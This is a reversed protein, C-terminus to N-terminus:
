ERLKSTLQKYDKCNTDVCNHRNCDSWLIELHFNSNKNVNVDEADKIKDVETVLYCFETLHAETHPLVDKYAMWGWMILTYGQLPQAIEDYPVMGTQLHLITHPGAFTKQTYKGAPTAFAFSSYKSDPIMDFHAYSITVPAPTSGTNEWQTRLRVYHQVGTGLLQFTRDIMPPSPNLFARQTQDLTDRSVYYSRMSFFVTVALLLGTGIQIQNAVSLHRWSEAKTPTPQSVRRSEALARMISLMKDLKAHIADLNM